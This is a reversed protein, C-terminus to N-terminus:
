RCLSSAQAVVRPREAQAVNQLPNVASTTNLRKALARGPTSSLRSLRPTGTAASYILSVVDDFIPTYEGNHKM